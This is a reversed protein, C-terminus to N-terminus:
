HEALVVKQEGHTDGALTVGLLLCLQQGRGALKFSYYLCICSEWQMKIIHYSFHQFWFFNAVTRASKINPFVLLPPLHHRWIWSNM